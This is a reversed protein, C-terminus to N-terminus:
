LIKNNFVKDTEGLVTVGKAQQSKSMGTRSSITTIKASM